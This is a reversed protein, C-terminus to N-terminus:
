TVAASRHGGARTIGVQELDGGRLRLDLPQIEVVPARAITPRTEIGGQGVCVFLRAGAVEHDAFREVGNIPPRYDDWGLLVEGDPAVALHPTWARPAHSALTWHGITHAPAWRGVLPGYAARVTGDAFGNPLSKPSAVTWAVTVEGHGIGPRDTVSHAEDPRGSSLSPAGTGHKSALFM